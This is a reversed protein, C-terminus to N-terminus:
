RPSTCRRDALGKGFLYVKGNYNAAGLAVDTTGGGPVERWGSWAAFASSVFLLSVILVLSRIKM